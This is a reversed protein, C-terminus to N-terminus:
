AQSKCGQGQYQANWFKRTVRIAYHSIKSVSVYLVNFNELVLDMKAKDPSLLLLKEIFGKGYDCLSSNM